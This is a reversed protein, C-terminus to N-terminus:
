RRKKKKTAESILYQIEEIIVSYKINYTAIAEQLADRQEGQEIYLNFSYLSVGERFEEVGEQYRSAPFEKNIEELQQMIKRHEERLRRREARLELRTSIEEESPRDQLEETIDGIDEDIEKVRRDLEVSRSSAKELTHYKQEQEERYKEFEARQERTLELQADVPYKNQKGEAEIVVIVKEKVRIAM